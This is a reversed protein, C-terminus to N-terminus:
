TKYPLNGKRKQLIRGIVLRRSVLFNFYNIAMLNLSEYGFPDIVYIKFVRM